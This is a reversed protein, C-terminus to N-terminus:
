CYIKGDDGVYLDVTGWPKCLDTLKKWVDELGHDWYGAGHGNRTLWFDHGAQEDSLGSEVLLERADSQFISCDTIVRILTEPSLDDVNYNQNLPDGGDPRSEDNSSWLAAEIYAKTFNDMQVGRLLLVMRMDKLLLLNYELYSSFMEKGVAGKGLPRDDRVAEVEKEKKIDGLKIVESHFSGHCSVWSIFERLREECTEGFCPDDSYVWQKAGASYLSPHFRDFIKYFEMNEVKREM